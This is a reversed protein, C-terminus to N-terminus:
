TSLERLGARIVTAVPADAELKASASAVATYAESRGYGLNVLASVADELPGADGQPAAAANASAGDAAAPQPSLALGAVKDKLEAAIRQALRKGVGQARSLAAVDQAAIANALADPALASLLALAGRAGVGSVSILLRFLAQERSASFGYLHIHDERVHTEILLSVPEGPRPLAQLTRASAYVLYGVGGVDLIAWDEGTSDLLGTLKAIM